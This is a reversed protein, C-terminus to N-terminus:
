NRQHIIHTTEEKRQKQNRIFANTLASESVFSTQLLRLAEEKGVHVIREEIDNSPVKMENLISLSLIPSIPRIVLSDTVTFMAQGSLFGEGSKPDLVTVSAIRPISSIDTILSDGYVPLHYYQPYSAEKIGLLDEKCSLYPALMPSVLMEKHCSSIFCQEDLDQASTYLHDICGNSSGNYNQKLIHGFPVTLFSFLLNVCNENAEAYCVLKKSKSVILKITINGDEINEKEMQLTSLQNLDNVPDNVPAPKNKLLTETLPRRSVLSCLLMDLVEEPKVNFNWEEISSCDMVGLKSLFSFRTGDSLSMVELDDSIVFRTNRKILVGGKQSASSPRAVQINNSMPNGCKCRSHRYHSLLKCKSLSYVSCRYFYNTNKVYLDKMKSKECFSESANHPSLLMERCAENRFLNVDINYVSEYLNHVCSIGVTQSRNRALKLMIAMPITLFGFLAEVFDSGSEAFVVRNKEKDVLVKLSIKDM